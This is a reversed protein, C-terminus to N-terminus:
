DVGDDAGMLVLPIAVLEVVEAITIVMILDSGVSRALQLMRGGDTVPFSYSRPGGLIRFGRCPTPDITISLFLPHLGESGQDM